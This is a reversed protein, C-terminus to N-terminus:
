LVQRSSYKGYGIAAMLDDPQGLSYDSAVAAYNQQTVEKLSVKYKRAEKELLKRGIELARERQHVLLWHKIKNRARSSKVFGLWDRSPQHGTQTIIEVIDGNRLKHRLPVMRGNVKAGVCAHGVETHITYAFDIPTSDRPLVVVKGKPTFTYVEEPYLDIKLTSLFENPDSVDRQWEVVQRLWALRQEDQASVPGDKYKWHAAIGEEAMRHMEETRIQLEFSTGDETIVSTHLSQYLNPRPMAIFDKIRGPVPRWLNHVIGLVAYCDQVSCTIVRMAYLDYVQDVSIRQKLLKKHISYLRKIRSEVSATIGAEKLKDRLVHEVSSLFQEGKKRRSEVADHVQQYAIPDLYRFGLDELEGRIKGMGLRHAIPGYIDLTEQAIKQQRDPPLHELTRMNHLRDALKILVVRIDDVMALMMKRLNEAQQEERTAFDIANIKTVGEVIHAVQEGFEKRIDVVTVSTDEVSDHLLGAAIAAPDIKMDALILAVELPHVLYPEGSARTQGAHHKLSFEYAKKIIELADTPRSERMRRMLEPFKTVTLATTAIQERLTAM